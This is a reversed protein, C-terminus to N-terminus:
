LSIELFFLRSLNSIGVSCFVAFLQLVKIGKSEIGCNRDFEDLSKPQPFIAAKLCVARITEAAPTLASQTAGTLSVSGCRALRKLLDLLLANLELITARSLTGSIDFVGPNFASSSLSSDALALFVSLVFIFM